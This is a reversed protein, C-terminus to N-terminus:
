LNSGYFDTTDGCPRTKFRRHIWFWHEPHELIRQELARHLEEMIMAVKDDLPLDSERIGALKESATIDTAQFYYKDFGGRALTVLLLPAGTRLVALALAKTTATKIGFFDVFVAHKRVVNQDFLVAVSEGNSLNREIERYAGKRDFIRNGFLERRSNWWRNLRPLKFGRALICTSCNLELGYLQAGLEFNGFHATAIMIGKGGARSKAQSVVNVLESRKDPDLMAIGSEKTLLPNKAFSYLNTALERFSNKMILEREALSKASFVLELNRRATKIFRPMSYIIALTIIHSIRYSVRNPLIKLVWFLARLLYLVVIDLINTLM